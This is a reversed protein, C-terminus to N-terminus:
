FGRAAKIVSKAEKSLSKWQTPPLYLPNAPAAPTTTAIPQKTTKVQQDRPQAQFEARQKKAEELEVRLETLLRAAEEQEPTRTAKAPGGGRPSRPPENTPPTKEEQARQAKAANMEARLEEILRTAEEQEATRVVKEPGGGRPSRPSGCTPQQEEQERRAKAAEAGARLEAMFRTAEGHDTTCITNTGQRIYWEGGGRPAYPTESMSQTKEQNTKAANTEARFNALLQARDEQLPQSRREFEASRPHPPLAFEASRPHPPPDFDPRDDGEFDPHTDPQQYMRAEQRAMANRLEAVIGNLRAIDDNGNGTFRGITREKVRGAKLALEKSVEAAKRLGAGIVPVFAGVSESNLVAWIGRIVLGTIHYGVVLCMAALPPKAVRPVAKPSAWEAAALSFFYVFTYWGQYVAFLLLVIPILFRITATAAYWVAPQIFDLITNIVFALWAYEVPQVEPNPPVRWFEPGGPCTDNYGLGAGAWAIALRARWAFIRETDAVHQLVLMTSAGFLTGVAAGMSWGPIIGLIVSGLSVIAHVIVILPAMFLKCAARM